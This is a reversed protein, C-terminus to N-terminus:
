RSVAVAVALAVAVVVVGVGVVVDVVVVMGTWDAAKTRFSFVLWHRRHTTFCTGSCDADQQISNPWFRLVLVM